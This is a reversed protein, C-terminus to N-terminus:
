WRPPSNALPSDTFMSDMSVSRGKLHDAWSDLNQNFADASYFMYSMNTVSSVNWQSIDGNFADAGAFMWEMNIVSGVDWQSIDGNFTVALFFMESMNTVSGVDWQSIDGNFAEAEAFMLGMNTVSGVDWHSIDGNFAAAGDFMMGMNTVSSVDWQSIDGNFASYNGNSNSSTSDFLSSMDTIQSTDILSLDAENGQKTIEADIITWLENKTTPREQVVLSLRSTIGSGGAPNATVTYVVSLRRATPTGSITGTASDLQLGPPLNPSVTYTSSSPPSDWNAPFSYPQGVIATKPANYYLGDHVGIRVTTKQWGRWLGEGTAIVTYAIGEQMAATAAVTIIGSSGDITIGAPLTGSDQPELVYNASPGANSWQPPSATENGRRAQIDAYSLSVEDLCARVTISINGTISGTYNGTGTAVVTYTAAQPAPADSPVFVAGTNADISLWAPASSLSYRATQGDPKNVWSPSQTAENGKLTVLAAYSLTGVIQGRNVTISITADTQGQYSGTGTATVTYSHVGPTAFRHLTVMGNDPDITVENSTPSITYSASPLAGGAFIPMSTATDSYTATIASYSLGSVSPKVIAINIQTTVTGTYLDQGSATITYTTQSILESPTGSIKGTTSDFQLGLPLARNITFTARAGVPTLGATIDNITKGSEGTFSPVSMALGTIRTKTRVPQQATPPGELGASNKATVVFYYDRGGQLNGISVSATGSSQWGTLTSLDAGDLSNQSYYVTYERITAEAGNFVGKDTPATWSLNVSTEARSIVTLGTPAGSASDKELVELTLAASETGIFNDIGAASIIYNQSAAVVKPTGSITGTAANFELGDPLPPNITFSAKADAPTLKTVITTIATDVKAVASASPDLRLGTIRTKTRVGEQATPPGELGASNRATVVFYYDTSGQLNGISISTTTSSEKTTLTSLDVGTLSNQSYYVTYESIAAETGNFTGRDIPATWSLDVSIDTSSVVTLGAPAGSASDKESVELALAAHEIGVFNDIGTASIIYSQSAAAVKPTGSITGTATDFQLGDPLTPTITFDAKADAPTLRTVINTITTDVTATASASPDLRLSTIRAKTRANQQATPPGELGASNKATVVFYYDRGGQLNGISVSATGSSQWGTLTSLDAGALSNQSYYVTYERITAEAGNFVGKDSPATWSLNVSTEARSIVTLGTPAGSASDKELVELTLAASETGIFNDIGAASIIYNQSAAVVKPTGSITGTAANFELGDPLPPNITFSAKADAPTLKTVITTIATDVKAVASASPDLRLGTIRTKTRVGEQATPPGELGASNRATVVFYYDTSGQLNGISISATTSSEKTTVVSLDAGDLSNQSYYVTYESIAAETGNFTGKDIPATWSLDVSIDTSSVVTLGAPAGSASNEESVELILAAHEIGIFNDIGTASIIYSQSAAAVKPTGSITGTATDFQLGDPLTPTITFDAKADTPTLGATIDNIPKGSEGTFSPVSMALGTIRAKTRANQQATPPGELGASNKATVVFYYDRGGQLNGISISATGSSQWGTLTSLDAGDLSNQSYYVTYESIRAEAGNFVGKDSPATWSLDVSTEARSIVTLGTPADSASDKELVELTLAASGTGIFNDIGAASIIYNQSAAAVKPTGSITGTAANFELGDPLAPTITFSARADAPTLVISVNTAAGVTTFVTAFPAVNLGTILTKTRVSQEATPPSELGANNKAAVVFYYDTGGQLNGISISTTTSSEKTPVASLDAGYLSNQSYYVTYESIAAEAGNFVGKGIPATWSLDVSAETRGIVTLGAPIGSASNEESVGLSLAAHQIGIFDDIGTASIIYSQSAAVTEPTGSITGTAANFRLGDPLTPTIAFSARADAPTLKMVINNIATDVKAAISTSPDISLGTILTKTRASQQATPPSELGASNKATVVFYYGAGGQLNGISVSTARSSETTTVASLDAGDLSNQSYYVTYESIAAEAGNFFGKDIPAAWSIDVSSDTRRIVTLGAPAGSVSDKESVELALTAHQTGIFNGIGIASIIYNESAAVVKPIGSITSTATDFELGDPLPPNIVFDATADPPTLVMSVNNIATGTTAFVTAFPAMNLGTILTKTRASQEATPLSELDANNKATVAFYYDTGAQLNGILVSTTGSSQWRTATSLDAGDLSNQSYYVTYESIAAETGNLFGKDIPAAWSLEVSRDTRNIVTLEAPTGSASDEELVELTLTTSLIGSLGGTGAASVTYDATGPGEVDPEVTIKGTAENIHISGPM